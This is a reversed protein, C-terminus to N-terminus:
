SGRARVRSAPRLTGRDDVFPYGPLARPQVGPPLGPIRPDYDLWSDPLPSTDLVGPPPTYISGGATPSGPVAEAVQRAFNGIGYQYRQWLQGWPSRDSNVQEPWYGEEVQCAAYIAALNRAQPHLDLPLEWGVFTAVDACGNLILPVVQDATPRTAETFTGLEAGNADKTRAHLLAGVDAVSPAWAPADAPPLGPTPGVVLDETVWPGGSDWAIIYDGAVAPADLDARYLGGGLEVIGTTRRPVVTAGSAAEIIRVGLTGVLGPALGDVHADALALGPRSIITM